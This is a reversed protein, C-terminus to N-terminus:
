ANRNGNKLIERVHRACPAHPRARLARWCFEL